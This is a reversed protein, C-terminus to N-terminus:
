VQCRACIYSRTSGTRIEEVPTSCVPCPQGPRHGVLAYEYRGLHGHFDREWRLGGLDTARRLHSVIAEHLRTTEADRLTDIKRLPHLKALFLIDQIYVNGIGAINHQDMLFAKIGGRRGALLQHLRDRTFEPSLPCIGLSATMKHGALEGAAAAHVYGFWSFYIHIFGLDDLDLRFQYKGDYSEGPPHYVIDGGMGLSILLHAGDAFKTLLWKGKASVSEIQKGLVTQRFSDTPMNLCREQRIELGTLSKGVLSDDMQGAINYIEPLEPV